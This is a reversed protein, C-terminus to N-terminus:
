FAQKGPADFPTMTHSHTLCNILHNPDICLRVNKSSKIVVVISSIWNTPEQVLAIIKLKGLRKLEAKPRPKLASHVGKISQKAPKCKRNWICNEQCSAM